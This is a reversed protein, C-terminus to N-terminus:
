KLNSLKIHVNKTIFTGKQTAKMTDWHIQYISENDNLEKIEEKSDEIIM